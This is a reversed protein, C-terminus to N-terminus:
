LTGNLPNSLAALAPGNRPSLRERRSSRWSATVEKSDEVFERCASFTTGRNRDSCRHSDPDL